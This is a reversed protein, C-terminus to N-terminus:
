VFINDWAYPLNQFPGVVLYQFRGQLECSIKFNLVRQWVTIIYNAMDDGSALGTTLWPYVTIIIIVLLSAYYFINVNVPIKDKLIFRTIKKIDM